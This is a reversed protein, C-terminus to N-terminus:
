KTIRKGLRKLAQVVAKQSTNLLQYSEVSGWNVCNGDMVMELYRNFAEPSPGKKCLATMIDYEKKIEEPTGKVHLEIYAYDTETPVRVTAELITPVVDCSKFCKGCEYDPNTGTKDHNYVNASCCNSKNM